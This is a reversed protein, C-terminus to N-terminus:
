PRPVINAVERECALRDFPFTMRYQFLRRALDLLVERAPAALELHREFGYSCQELQPGPCLEAPDMRPWAYTHPALKQSPAAWRM